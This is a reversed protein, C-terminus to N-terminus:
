KPDRLALASAIAAYADERTTNLSISHRQAYLLVGEVVCFVAIVEPECLLYSDTLRTATLM